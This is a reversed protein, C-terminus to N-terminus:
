HCKFPGKISLTLNRELTQFLNCGQTITQMQVRKVFCNHPDSFWCVRVPSEWFKLPITSWWTKGSQAVKTKQKGSRRYIRFGETNMYSATEEVMSRSGTIHSMNVPKFNWLTGRLDVVHQLVAPFRKQQGFACCLVSKQYHCCVSESHTKTPIIARRLTLSQLSWRTWYTSAFHQAWGSFQQRTSKLRECSRIWSCM